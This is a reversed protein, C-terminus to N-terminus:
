AKHRTSALLALREVEVCPAQLQKRVLRHGEPQVTREGAGLVTQTVHDLKRGTRYVTVQMQMCGQICDDPEPLRAFPQHRDLQAGLERFDSRELDPRIRLDAIM